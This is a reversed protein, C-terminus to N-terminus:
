QCMQVINCVFQMCNVNMFLYKMLFRSWNVAFKRQTQIWIFAVLESLEHVNCGIFQTCFYHLKRMFYFPNRSCNKPTLRANVNFLHKIWCRPEHLCATDCFQARILKCLPEETMRRFRIYISDWNVRIRIRHSFYTGRFTFWKPSM